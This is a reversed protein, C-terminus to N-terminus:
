ETDTGINEENEDASEDGFKFRKHETNEEDDDKKAEEMPDIVTVDEDKARFRTPDIGQNGTPGRDQDLSRDRTQDVTQDETEDQSQEDGRWLDDLTDNDDATNDDAM